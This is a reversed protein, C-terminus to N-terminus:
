GILRQVSLGYSSLKTNLIKYFTFGPELFLARNKRAFLYSLIFHLRFLM